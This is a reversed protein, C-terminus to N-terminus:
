TVLKHHVKISALAEGYEVIDGTTEQLAARAVDLMGNIGVRVLYCLQHDTATKGEITDLAIYKNM